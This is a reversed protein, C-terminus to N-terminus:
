VYSSVACTHAGKVASCKTTKIECRTKRNLKALTGSPWSRVENSVVRGLAIVRSKWGCLQGPRDRCVGASKVPLVRIEWSTIVPSSKLLPLHFLPAQGCEVMACQPRTPWHRSLLCSTLTWHLSLARSRTGTVGSLCSTTTWHRWQPVLGHELSAM